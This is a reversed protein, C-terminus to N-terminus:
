LRHLAALLLRRLDEWRSLPHKTVRGMSRDVTTWTCGWEDEGCMGMGHWGRRDPILAFAIDSHRPSFFQIPVREPDRFEVARKVLEYSNGVSFATM